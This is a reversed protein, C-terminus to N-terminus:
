MTSNGFYQHLKNYDEEELNNTDIWNSGEALDFPDNPVLVFISGNEEKIMGVRDLMRYTIGVDLRTDLNLMNNLPNFIM